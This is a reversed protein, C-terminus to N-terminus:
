VSFLEHCQDNGAKLYSSYQKTSYQISLDGNHNSIYTLINNLKHLQITDQITWGTEWAGTTRLEAGRGCLPKDAMNGFVTAYVRIGVSISYM